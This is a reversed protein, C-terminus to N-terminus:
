IFFSLGWLVIVEWYGQIKIDIIINFNLIIIIAIQQMSDQSERSHLKSEM